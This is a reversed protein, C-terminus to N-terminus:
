KNVFDDRIEQVLVEWPYAYFFVALADMVHFGEEIAVGEGKIRRQTSTILDDDPNEHSVRDVIYDWRCCINHGHVWSYCCCNGWLRFCYLVQLKSVLM